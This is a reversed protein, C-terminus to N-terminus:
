LSQYVRLLVQGKIVQTIQITLCKQQCIEILKNLENTKQKVQQVIEKIENEKDSM